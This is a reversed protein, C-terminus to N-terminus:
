ARDRRAIENLNPTNFLLICMGIMISLDAMNFVGTEFIGFDIHLFDTVSGYVIRDHLNGIGGGIMFCLGVATLKTMSHRTFLFILGAALALVPILSLLLFKVPNAFSDGWSLFAGTNEIKLLTFHNRILEIHEHTEIKNRVLSKSIQDCGINLILAATIVFTRFVRNRKM